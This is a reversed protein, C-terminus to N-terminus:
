QGLVAHAVFERILRREGGRVDWVRSLVPPGVTRRALEGECCAYLAGDSPDFRVGTMTKILTGDTTLADIELEDVGELALPIRTVLVEADLPVEVVGTGHLSVERLALADGYRARLADAEAATIWPDFTGRAVLQHLGDALRDLFALEDATGEAARAFLDEEYADPDDGRGRLHDDLRALRAHRETM